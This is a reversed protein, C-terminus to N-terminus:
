LGVYMRGPNLIGKPDFQEKLRRTLSALSPLQPQFVPVSSRIPVPARILTAHGGVQAIANHVGTEHADGDSFELWVLGGGWDFFYRTDAHSQIADIFKGARTPATSIKWLISEKGYGLPNADRISMWFRRSVEGDIREIKDFDDFLKTLKGIRYEVSQKFGEIRMATLSTNIPLGSVTDTDDTLDEPLHAASSVEVSSAMATSMANIAEDRDLGGVILTVEIEPRPLVKFTIETLVSLTGWSGCLGRSLDYGTVNKVVRGGSKFTEGRGSVATIGIVHDRAAGAKIRRPGSLNCAVVAGISGQGIDKGLVPGTDMPEFALQQNHEDLLKVIEVLPTGAQAELVLEEPEYMLIGSMESLSLIHGAQVPRGLERKSGHGIVELPIGEASAWRVLEEVEGQGSPKFQEVM